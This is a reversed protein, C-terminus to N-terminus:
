SAPKLARIYVIIKDIEADTLTNNGPMGGKGRRIINKLTQDGLGTTSVRPGIGAKRGDAPHCTQCNATLYLAKGAQAEASLTTPAPTETIDGGTIILMVIIAAIIVLVGMIVFAITGSNGTRETAEEIPGREPPRPAQAEAM